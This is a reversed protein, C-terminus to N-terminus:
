SRSGTGAGTTSWYAYAGGAAALAAVVTLAIVIRKKLLRKM